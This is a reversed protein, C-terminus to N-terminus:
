RSQDLYFVFNAGVPLFQLQSLFDASPTTDRFDAFQGDLSRVLCEGHLWCTIRLSGPLAQGRLQLDQGYAEFDVSASAQRGQLNQYKDYHNAFSTAPMTLLILALFNGPASLYRVARQFSSVAAQTLTLLQSFDAASHILRM